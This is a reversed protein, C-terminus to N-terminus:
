NDDMVVTSPEQTKQLRSKAQLQDNVDSLIRFPEIQIDTKAQSLKNDFDQKRSDRNNNSLNLISDNNEVKITETFKKPINELMIVNDENQKKTGVMMEKFKVHDENRIPTKLQTQSSDVESQIMKNEQKTDFAPGSNNGSQDMNIKADVPSVQSIQSETKQIDTKVALVEDINMDKFIELSKRRYVVRTKKPKDDIKKLGTNSEYRYILMQDFFPPRTKGWIRPKLLPFYTNMYIDRINKLSTIADEPKCLVFQHCKFASKKHAILDKCFEFVHRLIREKRIKLFIKLGNYYTLVLCEDIINQVEDFKWILYENIV